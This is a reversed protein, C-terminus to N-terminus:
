LVDDFTNKSKKILIEANISVKEKKSHFIKVTLRNSIVNVIYGNSPVGKSTIESLYKKIKKSFIYDTYSTQRVFVKRYFM